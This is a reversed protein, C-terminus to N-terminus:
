AGNQREPWCYIGGDTAGMARRWVAEPFYGRDCLAGLFASGGKAETLVVAPRDRNQLEIFVEDSSYLGADKFCVRKIESWQFTQNWDASLRALVYVKVRSEDFEVCLLEELPRPRRAVWWSRLRNLVSM